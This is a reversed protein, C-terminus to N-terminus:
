SRNIILGDVNLYGIECLESCDPEEMNVVYAPVTGCELIAEQKTSEYDSIYEDVHLLTYRKFLWGDPWIGMDEILYYVLYHREEELKRIMELEKESPETKRILHRLPDYILKVLEGTKSFSAIDKEAIGLLKMREVAEYKMIETMNNSEM